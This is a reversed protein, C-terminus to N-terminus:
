KAATPPRKFGYKRRMRQCFEMYRCFAAWQKDTVHEPKGPGEANSGM